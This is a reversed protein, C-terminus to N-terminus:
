KRPWWSAGVRFRALTFGGFPEYGDEVVAMTANMLAGVSVGAGIALPVRELPAWTLDVGLDVGMLPKAASLTEGTTEGRTVQRIYGGRIGPAVDVAVRSRTLARFALAAGGTWLRADDRLPQPQLCPDAPPVFGGCTPGVRRASGTLHEFAFYVARREANWPLRVRATGGTLHEGLLQHRAAVSAVGLEIPQSAAIGPITALVAALLLTRRMDPPV